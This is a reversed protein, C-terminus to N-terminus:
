RPRHRSLTEDPRRTYTYIKKVHELFEEKTRTGKAVNCWKCCPVCNDVLYGKSNDVRDVGNIAMRMYKKGVYGALKPQDGCYACPKSVITCFQELTLTVELGRKGASDRVKLNFIAELGTYKLGSQPRLSCACSRCMVIDGRRLRTGSTTFEHGCDCRVVWMRRSSQKGKTSWTIENEGRRLVVVKYYRDGVKVSRVGKEFRIRNRANIKEKHLEYYRKSHTKEDLPNKYPM